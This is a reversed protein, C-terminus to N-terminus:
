RSMDSVIVVGIIFLSSFANTSGVEIYGLNFKLAWFLDVFHDLDVEFLKLFIRLASVHVVEVGTELLNHHSRHESIHRSLCVDSLAILHHFHKM